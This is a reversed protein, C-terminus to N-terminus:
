NQKKRGKNEGCDTRDRASVNERREVVPEIEGYETSVALDCDSGAADEGM